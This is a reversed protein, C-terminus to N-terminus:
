KGNNRGEGSNRQRAEMVILEEWDIKKEAIIHAVFNKKGFLSIISEKGTLSSILLLVKGNPLLFDCAKDIFREITERGSAGGSWQTSSFRSEEKNEPLYPPNFFILGFRGSVNQFLNSIIVRAKLGKSALLDATVKVAEPNIDIATVYAGKRAAIETLYGSGCGMELVHKGQLNEKELMDAMLFTDESPEYVDQM